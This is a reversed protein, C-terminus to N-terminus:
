KKVEPPEAKPLSWRFHAALFRLLVITIAGIMMALSSGFPKWLLVCLVAGILSASAYFHKIFIYPRAGAMIDRMVGGGVGTIVGVFSLLIIGHINTAAYATQIGSVTFIGLGISDMWLILHEYFVSDSYIWRKVPPLFVLISVLISLIFYIPNRFTVPPTNGVILDRIVGGGVGTTLGLIAIGLLDMRKEVGVVAGSIAFAITGIIEFLPTFQTFNEAIM